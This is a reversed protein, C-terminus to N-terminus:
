AVGSSELLRLFRKELIKEKMKEIERNDFIMIKDNTKDEITWWEIGLKLDRPDVRKIALRLADSIDEITYDNEPKRIIPM